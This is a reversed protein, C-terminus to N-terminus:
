KQWRRKDPVIRYGIGMTFLGLTGFTQVESFWFLKKGVSIGFGTLQLSPSWQISPESFRGAGAIGLNGPNKIMMGVGLGVSSYMRVWERNFWAFRLTPTFFFSRSNERGIVKNTTSSYINRFNGVYTLTAGMELWKAVKISHAMSLAGTSYLNGKYVQLNYYQDTISQSNWDWNLLRFDYTIPLLGHSFRVEAEPLQKQSITKWNSRQGQAQGVSMAAILAILLLKRLM